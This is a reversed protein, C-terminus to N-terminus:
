CGNASVKWRTVMLISIVDMSAILDISLVNSPDNNQGLNGPSGPLVSMNKAIKERTPDNSQIRKSRSRPM